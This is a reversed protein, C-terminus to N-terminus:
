SGSRKILATIRDLREAINTCMKVYNEDLNKSRHGIETSLWVISNALRMDVYAQTLDERLNAPM